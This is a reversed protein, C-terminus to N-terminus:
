RVKINVVVPTHMQCPNYNLGDIRAGRAEYMLSLDEQRPGIFLSTVASFEAVDETRLANDM